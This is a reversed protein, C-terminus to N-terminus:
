SRPCYVYDAGEKEASERLAPDSEAVKGSLLNRIKEFFDERSEVFLQQMDSLGKTRLALSSGEKEYFKVKLGYPANAEGESNRALYNDFLSGADGGGLYVVSPRRTTKASCPDPAPSRPPRPKLAPRKLVLKAANSVAGNPKRVQVAYEGDGVNALKLVIRDNTMSVVTASGLARGSAEYLEVVTGGEFGDGNITITPVGNRVDSQRVSGISPAPMPM